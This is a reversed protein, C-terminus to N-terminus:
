QGPGGSPRRAEGPPGDGAAGSGIAARFKAISATLEQADLFGDKNTDGQAFNSRVQAPAEDESLKGDADKDANQILQAAIQGPNMGAFGGGGGGQRSGGRGRRGGESSGGGESRRRGGSGEDGSGAGEVPARVFQEAPRAPAEKIEPLNIGDLHARPNLVIEEGQELGSRIVLFKDNSAGIQVERLKRGGTKAAVLCYHKSGHEFVAQVPTQLVDIQQQLHIQVAATMGARMGEPPADIKVVTGYEKVSSNFWQAALPYDDVKTVIGSLEIEPFADLRVTTRMGAKVLDIRSENIKAKVQMKTPDPLRVVAQRERITTGEQILPDNNNRRDASNAYVVQGDVPAKLTCNTIQEEIFARKREDLEHTKLQSELNVKATEVDATFQDVMKKFTYRKLVDLKTRSARLDNEAKAVAFEDAKLQLPTIYGKGSLKKSHQLYQRARRLNEEALAIESQVLEVEQKFTGDQYEELTTEATKLTYEAQTMAAKSNNCVIQQQILEDQLASDDFECLVDGARVATGEPILKKIVMGSANRSKVECRVEINNSSEVEGRETVEHVFVGKEVKQIIPGAGAESKGPVFQWALAALGVFVTAVLLWGLPVRGGRSHQACRWRRSSVAPVM